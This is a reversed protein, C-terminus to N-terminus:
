LIPFLVFGFWLFLVALALRGKLHFTTRFLYLIRDHISGAKRQETTDQEWGNWQECVSYFATSLVSGWGSEEYIGKLHVAEAISDFHDLSRLSFPWEVLEL